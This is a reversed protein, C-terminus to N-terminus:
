FLEVQANLQHLGHEANMASLTSSVMATNRAFLGLTSYQVTLIVASVRMFACSSIGKYVLKITM